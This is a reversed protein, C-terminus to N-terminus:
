EHKLKVWHLTSDYIFGCKKAMNLSIENDTIIQMIIARNQKRLQACMYNTLRSALGKRTYEPLVKIFGISQDDHTLIWAILKGDKRIGYAPGAAIRERIYWMPALYNLDYHNYIYEADNEQLPAISDGEPITINIHEPLYLQFCPIDWEFVYKGALVNRIKEDIAAYHIISPSINALYAELGTKEDAYVYVWEENSKGTVIIKGPESHLIKYPYQAAFGKLNIYKLSLDNSIFDPLM